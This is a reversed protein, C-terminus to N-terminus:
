RPRERVVSPASSPVAVQSMPAPVNAGDGSEAGDRMPASFHDALVKAIVEHGAPTWHDRYVAEGSANRAALAATPDLLPIELRACVDRLWPAWTQSVDLRGEIQDPGRPVYLVVLPVGRAEARRKWDALVAEGLRTVRARHSEPWTAALDNANPIAGAVGTMQMEDADVKVAIGRSRLLAVRDYVVRAVLSNRQLLKAGSKWWPQRDPQNVWKVRYGPPDDSPEAVPMPTTAGRALAIQADQDGLDNEVFVYVVADLDLRDQVVSWATLAHVIGWSSMGVGIPEISPNRDALRRYFVDELPVQAAEVYSDGFIGLRFVGSAAAREHDVDLFGARNPIREITGFKKYLFTRGHVNMKLDPDFRGGGYVGPPLLAPVMRFAAEIAGFALLTACTALLLTALVSKWM